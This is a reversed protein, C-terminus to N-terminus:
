IKIGGTDDVADTSIKVRSEDADSAQAETAAGAGEAANGGTVLKTEVARIQAAYADAMATLSEKWPAEATGAEARAAAEFERLKPLGSAMNVVREQADKAASESQAGSTIENDAM